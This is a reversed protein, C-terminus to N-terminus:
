RLLLQLLNGGRRGARTKRRTRRGCTLVPLLPPPPLLQPPMPPPSPPRRFPLPPHWRMSVTNRPELMQSCLQWFPIRMSVAFMRRRNRRRAQWQKAESWKGAM